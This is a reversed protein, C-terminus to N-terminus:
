LRMRRRVELRSRNPGSESMMIGPGAPMDVWPTGGPERDDLLGLQQTDGEARGTGRAGDRVAYNVCRRSFGLWRYDTARIREVIEDHEPLDGRVYYYHTNDPSVGFVAALTFGHGQAYERLTFVQRSWLDGSREPALSRLPSFYGHFMVMDPNQRELYERTILGNHAIWRDNLGWTDIARWRSYLPLLGAETTAITYGRDAYERLIVAVDYRGDGSHRPGVYRSLQLAFVIALLFGVALGVAAKQMRNLAAFAPLSFDARLTKVLPFWSLVGIALIAYQFRGMYNMENSLFLWMGASGAIPILFALGLRVTRNLRLALLFAPILPCLLYFSNALSARLSDVYLDGGGKKYFPNPLPHGFYRWRWLFYAGGLVLFVGGFILVLQRSDRFPITLTLATLMFVSVLVGEPRVLGVALCALSFLYYGIVTRAEPSMLRQALLWATAVALAFFPTGFCAASLMLGPGVAFYAASLWAPKVGSGQLRRVGLYIMVVTALHSSITILRAAAELSLGLRRVLALTLMFLFDTAGDVPPEGINWVIGKGQAIHDAYRMLIAADELPPITFDVFRWALLGTLAILSAVAFVDSAKTTM